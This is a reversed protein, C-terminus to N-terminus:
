AALTWSQTDGFLGDGLPRLKDQISRFVSRSVRKGSDRMFYMREENEHDFECVLADGRGLAALVDAGKM